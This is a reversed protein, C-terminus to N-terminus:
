ITKWSTQSGLGTILMNNGPVEPYPIDSIKLSDITFNSPLLYNPIPTPHDEMGYHQLLAPTVQFRSIKDPLINMVGPIHRSRLHINFKILLLVLPRVIQMATNDRSSQKNVISTVASNDCHFLINSNTMLHGFMNILVFIPYLELITIHYIHWTEPYAAQIWKKGYCAGFGLKSADSVMNIQISDAIQVARFFTIGNYNTLFSLWTQLDQKVEDTLRIYYYPKTVTNLLNIM